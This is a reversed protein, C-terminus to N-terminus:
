TSETNFSFCSISLAGVMTAHYFIEAFSHRSLPSCSMAVVWPLLILLFTDLCSVHICVRFCLLLVRQVAAAVPRPLLVVQFQAAISSQPLVVVCGIHQPTAATSRAFYCPLTRLSLCHETASL